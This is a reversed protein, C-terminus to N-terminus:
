TEDKILRTASMQQVLEETLWALRRLRGLEAPTGRRGARKVLRQVLGCEGRAPGPGMLSAARQVTRAIEPTLQHPPTTRGINVLYTLTKRLREATQALEVPDTRAHAAQAANLDEFIEDLVLPSWKGLGALVRRLGEADM